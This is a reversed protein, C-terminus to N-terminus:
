FFAWKQSCCSDQCFWYFRSFLGYKNSKCKLKLVVGEKGREGNKRFLLTSAVKVCDERAHLSGKLGFLTIMEHWFCILLKDKMGCGNEHCLRIWLKKPLEMLLFLGLVIVLSSSEKCSSMVSSSSFFPVKVCIADMMQFEQWLDLDIQILILCAFVINQDFLLDNKDDVSFSFKGNNAKKM